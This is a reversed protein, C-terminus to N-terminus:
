ILDASFRRGSEIFLGLNELPTFYYVDQAPYLASISKDEILDLGTLTKLERIYKSDLLGSNHAYLHRHLTIEQMTKWDIKTTLDIGLGSFLQIAGEGWPMIRQFIGQKYGPDAKLDVLNRHGKKHMYYDRLINEISSAIRVLTSMNFFRDGYRSKWVDEYNEADPFLRKGEELLIHSKLSNRLIPLIMYQMEAALELAANKVKRRQFKCLRIKFAM